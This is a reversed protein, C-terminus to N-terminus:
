SNSGRVAIATARMLKSYYGYMGNLRGLSTLSHKHVLWQASRLPLFGIWEVENEQPTLPIDKSDLKCIYTYIITRSIKQKKGDKWHHNYKTLNVLQLQSSTITLGTEEQVERIAAQEPTEGSDVFGGVSIDLKGPNHKMTHSRKQVLIHRDDTYILVHAGRHWLGQLNAEEPNSIEGTLQNNKNIIDIPHLM